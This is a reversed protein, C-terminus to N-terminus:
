TGVRGRRRRQLHVILIMGAAFMWVIGPEPVAAAALMSGALLAHGGSTPHIGDWFLYTAPDCGVVAGCADAANALGYAAPNAVVDGILGFVDFVRVGDVGALQRDLASNMTSAVLQGLFSAENGLAAVAPALGLNPVNWVVIDAAGAAQLQGVMLGVDRAFGVANALLTRALPAGDAIDTLAARGNNGGGAIIYLGDAPAVGGVEGLFTSVQSRLSPVLGGRTTAGGFAYNAGGALSPMLDLGLGAAFSTAWVAGDSYTGSAYPLTPIYTNDTVVQGPDTGLLVANNGSDSLSDGFVVLQSYAFVPGAVLM